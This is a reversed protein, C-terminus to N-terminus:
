EESNMREDVINDLESLRSRVVCFTTCDAAMRGLIQYAMKVSRERTANVQKSEELTSYKEIYHNLVSEPMYVGRSFIGPIFRRAVIIRDKNVDYGRMFEERFNVKNPFKDDFESQIQSHELHRSEDDILVSGHGSSM